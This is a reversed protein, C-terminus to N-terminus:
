SSRYTIHCFGSGILKQRLMAGGDWETGTKDVNGEDAFLIQVSRCRCDDGPYTGKVTVGNGVFFGGIVVGEVPTSPNYQQLAHILDAVTTYPM